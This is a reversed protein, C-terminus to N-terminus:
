GDGIHAVRECFSVRQVSQHSLHLTTDIRLNLQLLRHRQGLTEFSQEVFERANAPAAHHHSPQPSVGSLQDSIVSLSQAEAACAHSNASTM